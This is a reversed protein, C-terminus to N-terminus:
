PLSEFIMRTFQDSTLWAQGWTEDWRALPEAAQVAALDEGASKGEAVAERAGTLLALYEEVQGRDLLPGHGPIIRTGEDGLSLVTKVGAILGYISGGAATDIFPYLGFFVLDGAHVVNAGTFHIVADGDTHARPAHFVDIEEGNLFFSISDTFTVVPLAGDPAAPTTRDFIATFQETSMRRRVNAHSIVLSGTDGFNENGGTHDGHWHTNLIFGVPQDTVAAVAARIKDSLPAYQDDIMFVGDEGVCLGINGGRGTLMYIGEAVPTTEISVEAMDNQGAATAAVATMLLILSLRIADAARTRALPRNM